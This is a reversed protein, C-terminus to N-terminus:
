SVIRYKFNQADLAEASHQTIRGPPMGGSCSVEFLLYNGSPLTLSAGKMSPVAVGVLMHGPVRILVTRVNSLETWLAAFLVAKSDCDGQDDALVKLPVAIGATYRGNDVPPTSRYPISQVFSYVADLLDARSNGFTRRFEEALPKLRAASSRVLQRYDVAIGRRTVEMGRDRAYAKLEKRLLGGVKKRSSEWRRECASLVQHIEAQGDPRGTMDTRMVFNFDSQPDESVRCWAPDSVESVVQRAIDLASLGQKERIKAEAEILFMQLDAASFGLAQESAELESRPIPLSIRRATGSVDVWNYEIRYGEPSETRNVSRSSTATGPLPAPGSGVLVLAAFAFRVAPACLVCHGNGQRKQRRGAM